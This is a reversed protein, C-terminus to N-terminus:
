SIQTVSVTNATLQKIQYRKATDTLVSAADVGVL